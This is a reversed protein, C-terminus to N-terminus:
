ITSYPRPNPRKRSNIIRKVESAASDYLMSAVQIGDKNLITTYWDRIIFMTIMKQVAGYLPTALNKSWARNLYLEYIIYRKDDIEVNFEYGTDSIRGVSQLIQYADMSANQINIRFLDLENDTIALSFERTTGDQTEARSGTYLTRLQV